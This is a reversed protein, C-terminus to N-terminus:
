SSRLVGLFMAQVRWVLLVYSVFIYYCVPSDWCDEVAGGVGVAAGFVLSDKFAACYHEVKGCFVVGFSFEVVRVIAILLYLLM